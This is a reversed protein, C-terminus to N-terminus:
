VRLDTTDKVQQRLQDLWYHCCSMIKTHCAIFAVISCAEIHMYSRLTSCTKTHCTIFVVYTNLYPSLLAKSMVLDLNSSKLLLLVECCCCGKKKLHHGVLDPSPWSMKMYTAVELHNYCRRETCCQMKMWKMKLNAMSEYHECHRRKCLLQLM